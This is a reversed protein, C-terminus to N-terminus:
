VQAIEGTVQLVNGVDESWPKKRLNKLSLKALIKRKSGIDEDHEYENRLLKMM